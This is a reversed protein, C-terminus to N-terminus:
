HNLSGNKAHIVVTLDYEFNLNYTLFYQRIEKADYKCFEKDSIQYIDSKFMM